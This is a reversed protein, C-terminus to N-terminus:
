IHILSLAHNIPLGMITADPAFTEPLFIENPGIIVFDDGVMGIFIGADEWLVGNTDKECIIM